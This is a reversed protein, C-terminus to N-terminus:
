APYNKYAAAKQSLTEDVMADHDREDAAQIEEATAPAYTKGRSAEYEARAETSPTPLAVAAERCLEDRRAANKCQISVEGQVSSLGIKWSGWFTIKGDALKDYGISLEGADSCGENALLQRAAELTEVREENEWKGMADLKWAVFIKASTKISTKTM